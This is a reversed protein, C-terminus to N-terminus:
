TTLTCLMSVELDGEYDNEDGDEFRLASTADIKHVTRPKTGFPSYSKAQTKVLNQGWANIFYPAV